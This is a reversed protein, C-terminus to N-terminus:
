SAYEERNVGGQGSKRADKSVSTRKGLLLGSCPEVRIGGEETKELPRRSDTRTGDALVEWGSSNRTEELDGDADEPVAALYAQKSANYVIFLEEWESNGASRNDMRYSVIGQGHITQNTIREYADPSKDCLGPLKKRLSILGKYYDVLDEFEMTQRWRLMNVEPDSRYSNDEGMKTRGFEEGAQMLLNGQCTFYIFAALKNAALVDEYRFVYNRNWCYNQLEKHMTLVLKDWLTFNDHVSVYNVIQRPSKPVFCAGGNKWGAVAQLIKEELGFGGNVFGPIESEFVHGKIADRTDDCFFGVGDELKEANKKLAAVTGKEMPSDAARWPEGYLLIRGPGFERDLEQRIRNMLEVTLLGMLDFRFGDVHYERVWYLVSDVIYNDVMSRGVAIDNGCASGDAFRGDEWYRYYYGPVTRQLWSDESFTHNYVVDMIVGIGCSHLAQIMEKCERIRVSGDYPDTAYSGEPVNYNLPDYGWNFQRDDGSEDISAYDFFPMLQVHTIGLKTLYEMCLPPGDKGKVAFARYKGRYEEPVGSDRDYSFDKIHLEYIIQEEAPPLAKEEAFGPPDTRKLDVAMSRRGNCGCARAYPDATRIEEKGHRILYDYYVGHLNESFELKWVGGSEQEMEKELYAESEGYGERFLRLKVQGALPSWLKFVTRGDGCMAGLDKREHAFRAEFADDYLYLSCLRDTKSGKM